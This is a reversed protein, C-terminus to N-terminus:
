ELKLKYVARNISTIMDDLINVLHTEHEFFTKLNNLKKICQSLYNLFEESTKQEVELSQKNFSLKRGDLEGQLVEVFADISKLLSNYLEDSIVHKNYVDVHWHYLQTNTQLSVFFPLLTPMVVDENDENDMNVKKVDEDDIEFHTTQM